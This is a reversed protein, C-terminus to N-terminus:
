PKQAFGDDIVTTQTGNLSLNSSFVPPTASQRLFVSKSGKALNCPVCLAQLNDMDSTGGAVRPVIHDVHMPVDTAGCSQCTYNDRKLVRLRQKKYSSTLLERHRIRTEKSHAMDTGISLTNM